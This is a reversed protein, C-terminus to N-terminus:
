PRSGKMLRVVRRQVGARYDSAYGALGKKMAIRESQSLDAREGKDILALLIVPVDEGAFYSVTRPEGCISCPIPPPAEEQRRQKQRCDVSCTMSKNRSM